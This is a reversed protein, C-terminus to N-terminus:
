NAYVDLEVLQDIPALLARMAGLSLRSGAGPDGAIPILTVFAASGTKRVVIRGSREYRVLPTEMWLGSVSPDGLGAITQRAGTWGPDFQDPPTVDEAVAEEVTEEAETEPVVEEEAAEAPKSVGFLPNTGDRIDACAAMLILSTLAVYRM